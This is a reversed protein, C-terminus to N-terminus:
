SSVDWYLTEQQSRIRFTKNVGARKTQGLITGDMELLESQIWEAVSIRFSAAWNRFLTLRAQVWPLGWAKTLREKSVKLFSNQPKGTLLM